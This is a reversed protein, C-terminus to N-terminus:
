LSNRAIIWERCFDSRVIDREEFRIMDISSIKSCIKMMKDFGSQEHRKNILDNQEDDGCVIFKTNDGMRTFISNIEMDTMNQIEDILVVCNDWTLGRIFATPMFELKGNEKLSDYAFNTKLLDGIIDRYPAEFPEMKEEKTGPLHGMDRGAVSSRIILLKNQPSEKEFIANLALYLGVYSKGTGACGTAVIHNGQMFSDFMSKQPTTIPKISKIDHISWSKKKPGEKIAVVNNGIQKELFQIKEDKKSKRKATM